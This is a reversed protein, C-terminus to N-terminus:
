VSAKGIETEIADLEDDTPEVDDIEDIYLESVGDVVSELVIEIEDDTSLYTNFIDDLYEDFDNYMINEIRKM